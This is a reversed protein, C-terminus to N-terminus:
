GERRVRYRAVDALLERPREDNPAVNVVLRYRAKGLVRRLERAERADFGLLPCIGLASEGRMDDAIDTAALRLRRATLLEVEAVLLHAPAFPKLCEVVAIQAPGRALEPDDDVRTAECDVLSDDFLHPATGVKTEREIDRNLAGDFPLKAALAACAGDNIRAVARHKRERARGRVVEVQEHRLERGLHVVTKEPVGAVVVAVAGAEFRIRRTRRELRNGGERRELGANRRLGGVVARADEFETSHLEVARAAPSVALYVHPM